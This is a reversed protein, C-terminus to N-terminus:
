FVVAVINMNLCLVIITVTVIFAVIVQHLKETDDLFIIYFYFPMYYTYMSIIDNNCIKQYDFILEYQFLLTMINKYFEIVKFDINYQM